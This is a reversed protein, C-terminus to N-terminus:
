SGEVKRQLDALQKGNNSKLKEVLVDPEVDLLVTATAVADAESLGAKMARGVADVARELRRGQRVKNIDPRPTENIFRQAEVETVWRAGAPLGSRDDVEVLVGRPSQETPPHLRWATAM